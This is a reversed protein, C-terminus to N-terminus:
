QVRVRFEVTGKTGPAIVRNLQFRIHTYDLLPVARSITVGNPTTINETLPFGSFTEAGDASYVVTASEGRSFEPLVVSRDPIIGILKPNVAGSDGTNEFHIRYIVTDGVMVEKASAEASIQTEGESGTIAKAATLTLELNPAAMLPAVLLTLFILLKSKM